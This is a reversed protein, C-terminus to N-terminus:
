NDPFSSYSRSVTVSYWFPRGCHECETYCTAASFEDPEHGLQVEECYPCRLQDDEM